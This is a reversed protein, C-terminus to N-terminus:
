HDTGADDRRKIWEEIRQREEIERARWAQVEPQAEWDAVSQCHPRLLHGIETRYAYCPRGDGYCFNFCYPPPRKAVRDRLWACFPSLPRLLRLEIIPM